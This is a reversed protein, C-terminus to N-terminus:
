PPPGCAQDILNAAACLSCVESTTWAVGEGFVASLNTNISGLVSDVHERTIPVHKFYGVTAHVVARQARRDAVKAKLEIKAATDLAPNPAALFNQQDPKKSLMVSNFLEPPKPREETPQGKKICKDLPWQRWGKARLQPPQKYEQYTVSGDTELRQWASPLPPVIAAHQTGGAKPRTRGGSMRRAEAAARGSTGQVVEAVDFEAWDDDDGGVATAVAAAGAAEAADDAM